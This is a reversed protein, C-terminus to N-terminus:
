IAINNRKASPNACAPSSLAFVLPLYARYRTKTRYRESGKTNSRTGWWRGFDGSSLERVGMIWMSLVAVRNM